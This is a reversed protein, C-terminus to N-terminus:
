WAEKGVPPGWDLESPRYRAPMRAVLDALRLKKRPAGARRIVIANKRITLEVSQGVSLSAQELLALPIRLGQSNGWKQVKTIM